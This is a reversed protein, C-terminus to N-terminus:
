LLRSHGTYAYERKQQQARLGGPRLVHHTRPRSRDVVDSPLNGDIPLQDLHRRQLEGHELLSLHQAGPVPARFHQEPRSDKQAEPLVARQSHQVSVQVIRLYLHLLPRRQDLHHLYGPAAINM